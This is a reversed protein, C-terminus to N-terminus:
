GRWSKVKHTVDNFEGVRSLGDRALHSELLDESDSFYRDGVTEFEVIAEPNNNSLLFMQSRKERGFTLSFKLIM